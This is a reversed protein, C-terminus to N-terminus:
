LIVRFREIRILTCKRRKFTIHIHCTFLLLNNTTLGSIHACSWAPADLSQPLQRRTLTVEPPSYCVNSFPTLHQAGTVYAIPCPRHSQCTATSQHHQHTRGRLSVRSSNLLVDLGPRSCSGALNFSTTPQALGRNWPAFSSSRTWILPMRGSCLAACGRQLCRRNPSMSLVRRPRRNPPIRLPRDACIHASKCLCGKGLCLAAKWAHFQPKKM